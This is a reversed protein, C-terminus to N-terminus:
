ECHLKWKIESPEQVTSPLTMCVLQYGSDMFYNLSKKLSIKKGMFSFNHTWVPYNVVHFFEVSTMTESESKVIKRTEKKVFGTNYWPVDCSRTVFNLMINIYDMGSFFFQGLPIFLILLSSITAKLMLSSFFILVYSLFLFQIVKSWIWLMYNSSLQLIDVKPFNLFSIGQLLLLCHNCFWIFEKSCYNCLFISTPLLCIAWLPPTILYLCM